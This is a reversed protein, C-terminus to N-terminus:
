YRQQSKFKVPLVIFIRIIILTTSQNAFLKCVSKQTLPHSTKSPIVHVNILWLEKYGSIKIGDLIKSYKESIRSSVYILM